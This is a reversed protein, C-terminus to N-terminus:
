AIEGCESAFAAYCYRGAAETSFATCYHPTAFCRRGAGLGAALAPPSLARYSWLGRHLVATHHPHPRLGWLVAGVASVRLPAPKRTDATSRSPLLQGGPSAGRGYLDDTVRLLFFFSDATFNYGTNLAEQHCNFPTVLIGAFSLKDKAAELWSNSASEQHCSDANLM